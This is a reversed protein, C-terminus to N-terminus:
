PRSMRRGRAVHLALALPLLAGATVHSWRLWPLLVDDALYYLGLGSLALALLAGVLLVARRHIDRRRWGVRLHTQGVLAYLLLGAYALSGHVALLPGAWPHPAPMPEGPPALAYAVVLWGLGSALLAASVAYIGRRLWPPLRNHVQGSSM